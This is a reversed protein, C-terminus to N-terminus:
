GVLPPRVFALELTKWEVIEETGDELTKTKALGKMSICSSPYQITLIEDEM